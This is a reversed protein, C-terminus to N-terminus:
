GDVFVEPHYQPDANDATDVFGCASCWARGGGRIKEEHNTGTRKAAADAGLDIMKALERIGPDNLQVSQGDTFTYVAPNLPMSNLACLSCHSDHKEAPYRSGSCEDCPEEEATMGPIFERGNDDLVEVDATTFDIGVESFADRVTGHALLAKAKQLTRALSAPKDIRLKIVISAV